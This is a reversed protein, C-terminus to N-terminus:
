PKVRQDALKDAYDQVLNELKTRTRGVFPERASLAEGLSFKEYRTLIENGVQFLALNKAERDALLRQLALNEAALKAREADRREALETAQRHALDSKEATERAEAVEGARAALQAKLGAITKDAAVREAAFEKKLAELRAALAKNEETLTTQATQLTSRESEAARLQLTASRLADRLRAEGNDSEAATLVALPLLLFLLPSCRM